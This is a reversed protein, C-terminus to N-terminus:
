CRGHVAARLSVTDRWHRLWSSLTKFSSAPFSLSSEPFRANSHPTLASELGRRGAAEELRHCNGGFPKPKLLLTTAGSKFFHTGDRNLRNQNIQSATLFRSPYLLFAEHLKLQRNWFLHVTIQARLVLLGLAYCIIAM